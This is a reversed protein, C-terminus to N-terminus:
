SYSWVLHVPGLCTRIFVMPGIIQTHTHTHTDMPGDSLYHFTYTNKGTNVHKIIIVLRFGTVSPACFQDKLILIYISSVINRTVNKQTLNM